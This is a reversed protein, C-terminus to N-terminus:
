ACLQHKALTNRRAADTTCQGLFQLGWRLLRRDPPFKMRFAQDNRYLSKFLTKVAKPSAWAFSHGPAILGANGFSAGGQAPPERDLVTVEHGEKLLHWATTAGVVGCGLILVKM